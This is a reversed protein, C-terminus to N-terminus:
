TLNLCYLYVYIKSKKLQRNQELLIESLSSSTSNLKSSLFSSSMPLCSVVVGTVTETLTWVVGSNLYNCNKSM